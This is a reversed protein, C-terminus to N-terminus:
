VEVDYSADDEAAEGLAPVAQAEVVTTSIVKRDGSSFQMVLNFQVGTAATKDAAPMGDVGAMRQCAKFADIRQPIPVGPNTIISSMSPLSQEVVHASKLRLRDQIAGDSEHVARLKQIQAVVAPHAGLWMKLGTVSGLQYRVALEEAPYIGYAVDQILRLVVTEEMDINACNELCPSAHIIEDLPDAPQIQTM